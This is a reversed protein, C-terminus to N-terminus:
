GEKPFKLNDLVKMDEPSIEFSFVDLNSRIRSSKTSKPLPIFGKQLSWRLAVQGPTRGYKKAMDALEESKFIRGTAFPSYAELRIGMEKAYDVTEQPINGPCIFIQDVHPIFGTAETLPTIHYPQFNSVGISRCKGEEYLKIFAKWSDINAETYESGDGKTGWPKPAHILYLDVYDTELKELSMELEKMAVDYGKLEARLKTTLFIEERRLGFDRIARGVSEENQYAAATDIHRYGAELATFVADYAEKGNKIQWTGFGLSPISIGNDLVIHKKINM